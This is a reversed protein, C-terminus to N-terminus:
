EVSNHFFNIAQEDACFFGRANLSYKLGMMGRVGEGEFILHKARLRSAFFMKNVSKEIPIFFFGVVRHKGIEEYSSM